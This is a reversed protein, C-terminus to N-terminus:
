LISAARRAWQLCEAGSGVMVIAAEFGDREFAAVQESDVSTSGARFGTGTRQRVYVSFQRSGDTYVLHLVPKGAMACTKAHELRFGTPAFGKVMPATVGYRAILTEIEAPESRWRRPQQDVVERRHDRALEAYIDTGRAHQFIGISVAALVVAAAAGMFIWLRAREAAIRKRVAQQLASADPLGDSYAACLRADIDDDRLDM